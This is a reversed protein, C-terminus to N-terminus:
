TKLSILFNIDLSGRLRYHIVLIALGIASESAAVMLIFLSFYQGFLDDYLASYTVFNLGVAFLIIEVSMLIVLMNPRVVLMGWLGVMILIIVVTALSYVLM